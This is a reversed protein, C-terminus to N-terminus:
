GSRRGGTVEECQVGEQRNGNREGIGGGGGEHRTEEEEGDTNELCHRPKELRERTRRGGWSKDSSWGGGGGTLQPPRGDMGSVVSCTQMERHKTGVQRGAAEEKSLLATAAHFLPSTRSGPTPSAWGGAKKLIM